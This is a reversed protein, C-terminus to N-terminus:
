QQELAAGIGVAPVVVAPRLEMLGAVAVVAVEGFRHEGGARAGVEECSAVAAGRQDLREEPAMALDGIEETAFRVVQADRGAEAVQQQNALEGARRLGARVAAEVPGMAAEGGPLGAVFWLLDEVFREDPGGFGVPDFRDPQEGLEASAGAGVDVATGWERPGRCVAARVRDAREDLQAGVGVLAAGEASWAVALADGGEVEGCLGSLAVGDDSEQLESGVQEDEVLEVAAGREAPGTEATMFFEGLQEGSGRTLMARTACSRSRKALKSRMRRSISSSNPSAM